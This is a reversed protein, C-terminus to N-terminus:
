CSLILLYEQISSVKYVSKPIKKQPKRPNPEFVVKGEERPIIVNEYRLRCQKPSRYIRSTTSVIDSVLDWNPIHAPSMVTLNLPLQLLTQVAQVFLCSCQMLEWITNCKVKTISIRTVIKLQTMLISCWFSRLAWRCYRGTKMYLGSLSIKIHAILAVQNRCTVVPELRWVSSALWILINWYPKRERWSSCIHDILYHGVIFIFMFSGITQDDEVRWM